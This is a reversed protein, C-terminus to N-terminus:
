YKNEVQLSRLIFDSVQAAPFWQEGSENVQSGTGLYITMILGATSIPELQRFIGQDIGVALIDQGVLQFMPLYAEYMHVKFEDDPGNLTAFLVRGQPLNETVWAFGAEFFRELRRVPDDEGMVQQTMLALHGAAIEDILALMLARKSAFYNYITGKAFGAKKSIRNINAGLYGERAFEETAAHLLLARTESMIDEREIEKHRPM